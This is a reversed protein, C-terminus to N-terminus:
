RSGKVFADIRGKWDRVGWAKEEKRLLGLFRAQEHAVDCFYEVPTDLTGYEM